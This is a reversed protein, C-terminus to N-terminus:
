EVFFAFVLRDRVIGQALRDRAPQRAGFREDRMIIQGDVAVDASDTAVLVPLRKPVAVTVVVGCGPSLWEMCSGVVEIEDGRRRLEYRTDIGTKRIDSVLVSDLYERLKEPSNIKELLKM